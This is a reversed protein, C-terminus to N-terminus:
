APSLMEFSESKFALPIAVVDVSVLAASIEIGNIVGSNCANEVCGGGIVTRDSTEEM